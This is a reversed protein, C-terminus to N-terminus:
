SLAVDLEWVSLKLMNASVSYQFNISEKEDMAADFAYEGKANLAGPIANLNGQNPTQSGYYRLTSLTGLTDFLAYVRFTTPTRVPQLPGSLIPTNAAVRTPRNINEISIPFFSRIERRLHRTEFILIKLLDDVSRGELDFEEERALQQKSLKKPPM